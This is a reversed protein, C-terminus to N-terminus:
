VRGRLRVYTGRRNPPNQLILSRPSSGYCCTIHRHLKFLTKTYLVVFEKKYFSVFRKRKRIRPKGSSVARSGKGSGSSERGPKGGQKLELQGPGLDAAILCAVVLFKKSGEAVEELRQFVLASIGCDNGDSVPLRHRSSSVAPIFCSGPLRQGRRELVARPPYLVASRHCAKGDRGAQVAAICVEKHFLQGGLVPLIDKETSIGCEQLVRLKDPKRLVAKM